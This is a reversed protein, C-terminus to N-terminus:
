AARGTSSPPKRSEYPIARFYTILLWICLPLTRILYVLILGLYTNM